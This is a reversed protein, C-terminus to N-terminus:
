NTMLIYQNYVSGRNKIRINFTGTWAPVWRCICDDTYDTDSTILNGNADYVYLDLDTDGDGIVALEAVENGRFVIQYTDTANASVRDVHYKPGGSAGRTANKKEKEVQKILARAAKDKGAFKAADALLKTPDLTLDKDLAGSMGPAEEFADAGAEQHPTAIIIRAAEALATASYNDYGYKVLGLATQLAEIQASPPQTIAQKEEQAFCTFSLALISAALALKKM